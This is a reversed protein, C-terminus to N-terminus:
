HRLPRLAVVSLSGAVVLALLTCLGILTWVNGNTLIVLLDALREADGGLREPTSFSLAHGIVGRFRFALLGAWMTLVIVVGPVSMTARFVRVLVAPHHVGKPAAAFAPLFRDVPPVEARRSVLSQELATFAALSERCAACTQVHARVRAVDADPLDQELYAPLLAEIHSCTENM